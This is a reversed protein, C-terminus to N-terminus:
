LAQGTADILSSYALWVDRAGGATCLNPTSASFAFPESPSVGEVILGWGDKVRSCSLWQGNYHSMRNFARLIDRSKPTRFIATPRLAAGRGSYFVIKNSTIVWGQAPSVLTETRWVRIESSVPSVAIPRLNASASLGKAVAASDQAQAPVFLTLWFATTAVALFLKM